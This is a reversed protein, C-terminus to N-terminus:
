GHSLREKWSTPLETTGLHRKLKTRARHLRSRVTGLPIDLVSAVEDYTLEGWAILLLVHRDGEALTALATALAPETSRASVAEAIDASHLDEDRPAVLAARLRFERAEDRRHQGVLHTAIGYLWPRANPRSPDYRHRRRFAIVFTEGVLDDAVQRGLRLTLYRHIHPAHRHFIAGFAQPDALSAGITAADDPRDQDPDAGGHEAETM